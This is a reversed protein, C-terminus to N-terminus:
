PTSREILRDEPHLGDVKVIAGVGRKWWACRDAKHCALNFEPDRERLRMVYLSPGLFKSFEHLRDCQDSTFIFDKRNGM